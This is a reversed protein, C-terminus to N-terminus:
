RASPGGTQFTAFSSLGARIAASRAARCARSAASRSLSNYTAIVRARQQSTTAPAPLVVCSAQQIFRTRAPTCDAPADTIAEAWESKERALITDRDATLAFVQDLSM